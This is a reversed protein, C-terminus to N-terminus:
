GTLPLETRKGSSANIFILKGDDANVIQNCADLLEIGDVQGDPGVDINISDSVSITHVQGTKERLQLYAINYRPDITLKM